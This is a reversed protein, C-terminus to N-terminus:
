YSEPDNHFTIATEIWQQFSLHHLAYVCTSRSFWTGNKDIGEIVWYSGDGTFKWFELDYGLEKIRKNLKIKTVKEM